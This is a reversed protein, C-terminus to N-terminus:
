KRKKQMKIQIITPTELCSDDDGGRISKEYILDLEELYVQM